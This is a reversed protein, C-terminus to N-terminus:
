APGRRARNWMGDVLRGPRSALCDAARREGSRNIVEGAVRMEMAGISLQDWVPGLGREQMGGTRSSRPTRGMPYNEAANSRM